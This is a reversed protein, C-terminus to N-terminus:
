SGSEKEKFFDNLFTSISDLSNHLCKEIPNINASQSEGKM